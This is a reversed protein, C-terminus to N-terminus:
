ESTHFLLVFFAFLLVLFFFLLLFVFSIHLLFFSIPEDCDVSEFLINLHFEDFRLISLILILNCVITLGGPLAKRLINLLFRGQVRDHNPELALVTNHAACADAAARFFEEAVADDAGEPKSRNRPCGFVLNPCGAAEAFAAAQATYDLLTQRDADSGWISESRGYWISQMSVISLGFAKDLVEKLARVGMVHDESYPDPNFFKTPAIELGTFGYQKMRMYAVQSAEVDWAINSIALKM